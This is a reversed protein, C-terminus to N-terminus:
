EYYGVRWKQVKRGGYNRWMTIRLAELRSRDSGDRHQKSADHTLQRNSDIWSLDSCFNHEVGTFKALFEQIQSTEVPHKKGENM